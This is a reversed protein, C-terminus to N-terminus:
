KFTFLFVYKYIFIQSKFLNFYSFMKFLVEDLIVTTFQGFINTESILFKGNCM